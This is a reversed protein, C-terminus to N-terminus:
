TLTLVKKVYKEIIGATGRFAVIRHWFTQDVKEGEKNKYPHSTALNFNAVKIDGNITSIQPNQGCFGSLVVINISSM